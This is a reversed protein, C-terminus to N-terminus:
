RPRTPRTSWSPRDRPRPVSTLEHPGSLVSRTCSSPPRVEIAKEASTEQAVGVWANAVLIALIVVPEVYATAKDDGEELFALVLSVGASALLILVLQDKFQELILKWLPPSDEQPLVAPSTRDLERPPPIM